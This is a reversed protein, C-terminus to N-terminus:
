TRNRLFEWLARSNAGTAVLLYATAWFVNMRGNRRIPRPDHPHPEYSIRIEGTNLDVRAHRRNWLKDVSPESTGFERPIDQDYIYYFWGHRLEIVGLWLRYFGFNAIGPVVGHVVVHIASSLNWRSIHYQESGLSALTLGFFAFPCLTLILVSFVVRFAVRRDRLFLPWQFAKWRPQVNAIAGWVIAYFLMFVTQTENITSSQDILRQITQRLEEM